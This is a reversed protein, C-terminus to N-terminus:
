SDQNYFRPVSWLSFVIGRNSNLQKVGPSLDGPVWEIAPQIPGLAPRFATSFLVIKGRGPILVQGDLRYDTM